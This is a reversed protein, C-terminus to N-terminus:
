RGQLHQGYVVLGEALRSAEVAMAKAARHLAAACVLPDGQRIVQVAEAELAFQQAVSLASFEEAPADEGNAAIWRAIHISRALLHVVEDSMSRLVIPNPSRPPQRHGAAGTVIGTSM